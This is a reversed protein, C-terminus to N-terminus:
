LMTHHICAVQPLPMLSSDEGLCPPVKLASRHCGLGNGSECPTTADEGRVAVGDQEDDEDGMLAPEKVKAIPNSAAKAKMASLILDINVNKQPVLTTQM